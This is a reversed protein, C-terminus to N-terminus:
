VDQMGCSSSSNGNHLRTSSSGEPPGSLFSAIFVSIFGESRQPRPVCAISTGRLLCAHLSSPHLGLISHVQLQLRQVMPNAAGNDSLSYRVASCTCRQLHQSQPSLYCPIPIHSSRTGHPPPEPPFDAPARTVSAEESTKVAVHELRRVGQLAGQAVRSM